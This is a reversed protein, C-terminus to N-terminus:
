QLRELKEIISLDQIIRVVAIAMLRDITELNYCWEEHKMKLEFYEHRFKEPIFANMEDEYNEQSSYFGYLKDFISGRLELLERISHAIDYALESGLLVKWIRRELEEAEEKTITEKEADM